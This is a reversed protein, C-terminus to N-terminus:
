TTPAASVLDLLAARRAASMQAKRKDLFAQMRRVDGHARYCSCASWYVCHGVKQLGGPRFCEGCYGLARLDAADSRKLLYEDAWQEATQDTGATREAGVDLLPERSRVWEPSGYDDPPVSALRRTTMTKDREEGGGVPPPATRSLLTKTTSVRAEARRPRTICNTVTEM